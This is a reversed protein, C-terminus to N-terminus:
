GPSEAGDGLLVLGARSLEMAQLPNHATAYLGGVLSALLLLFAFKKIKM